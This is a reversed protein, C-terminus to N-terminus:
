GYIMKKLIKSYVKDTFHAVIISAPPVIVGQMLLWFIYQDFTVGTVLIMYPTLILTWLIFGMIAQVLFKMIKHRRAAKIGESVYHYNTKSKSM